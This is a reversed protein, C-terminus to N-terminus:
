AISGESSLSISKRLKVWITGRHHTTATTNFYNCLDLANQQLTTTWGLEQPLYHGRTLYLCPNELSIMLMRDMSIVAMNCGAISAAKTSTCKFKVLKTMTSKNAGVALKMVDGTLSVSEGFSDGQAQGVFEQGM